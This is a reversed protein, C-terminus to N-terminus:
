WRGGYAGTGRADEAVVLGRLENLRFTQIFNSCFSKFQVDCYEHACFADIVGDRRHVHMREAMVRTEIDYVTEPLLYKATGDRMMIQRMRRIEVQVEQPDLFRGHRQGALGIERFSEVSWNM